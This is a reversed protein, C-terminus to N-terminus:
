RRGAGVRRQRRAALAVAVGLTLLMTLPLLLATPAEPISTGPQCNLRRPAFVRVTRGSTVRVRLIPSGYPGLM